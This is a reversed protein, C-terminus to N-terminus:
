CTKEYSCIKYSYWTSIQGKVLFVTLIVGAESKIYFCM